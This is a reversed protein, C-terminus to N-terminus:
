DVWRKAATWEDFARIYEVGLVNNTWGNPSCAWRTSAPLPSDQSWRALVYKGKMIIFPPLVTGDACICDITTVTERSGATSVWILHTHLVLIFTFQRQKSGGLRRDRQDDADRRLIVVVKENGTVGLQWGKEDCNFRNPV